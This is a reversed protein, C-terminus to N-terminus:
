MCTPSKPFCTNTRKNTLKVSFFHQAMRANGTIVSGDTYGKLVATYFSGWNETHITALQLMSLLHWKYHVRKERKEKKGGRLITCTDITELFTSSRESKIKYLKSSHISICM